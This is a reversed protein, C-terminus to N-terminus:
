SMRRMVSVDVWGLGHRTLALLNKCGWEDVRIKDDIVLVVDGSEVDGIFDCPRECRSLVAISIATSDSQLNIIYLVGQAMDLLVYDNKM